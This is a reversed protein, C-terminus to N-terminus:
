NTNITVNNDYLKLLGMCIQVRRRQGDSMTTLRQYIDIDLMRILHARRAPDVGDVNFIMKGASIDAQASLQLVLGLVRGLLKQPSSCFFCADCKFAVLKAIQWLGLLAPCHQHTSISAGKHELHKSEIPLLVCACPM